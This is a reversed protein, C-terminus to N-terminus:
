RTVGERYRVIYDISINNYMDAVLPNAYTVWVKAWIKNAYRELNEKSARCMKIKRGGVYRAMNLHYEWHFMNVAHEAAEKPCSATIPYSVYPKTGNQVELDVIYDIDVKAQVSNGHKRKPKYTRLM